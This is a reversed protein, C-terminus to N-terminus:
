AKPPKLGVQLRLGAKGAMMVLSDISFLNIKGRMLDSIRPQTVGLNEAAQGQSWNQSKIHKTVLMMLYSLMKMRERDGLDDEIADWISEYPGDIRVNGDPL